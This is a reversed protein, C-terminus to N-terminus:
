MIPSLMTLHSGIKVIKAGNPFNLINIQWFFWLMHVSHDIITLLTFLMKDKRQQQDCTWSTVYSTM